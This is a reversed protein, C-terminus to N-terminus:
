AEPLRLGTTGDMDLWYEGSHHVLRLMVGDCGPCRLITGMGGSQYASLSGLMGSRGCARCTMWATTMELRFVEALVGAAANGDLKLTTDDM